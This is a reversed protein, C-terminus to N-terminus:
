FHHINLQSINVTNSNKIFIGYHPAQRGVDGYVGGLIMHQSNGDLTLNSISVNSCNDLFICMGAYAAYEHKVFLNNGHEYPEGTDPNFAGFRLSDIYKLISGSTGQVKFNKVKTFHLVDEGEYAPKKGQGGTFPQKGVIYIGKSIILKGNGGRNNFYDAAKQFAEHDNTKGNGKAGFSKIDKVVYTQALALNADTILAIFFLNCILILRM